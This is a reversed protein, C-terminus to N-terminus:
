QKGNKGLMPAPPPRFNRTTTTLWQRAEVKEKPALIASKCKSCYYHRIAPLVRMWWSRPIREVHAFDCDACSRMFIKM